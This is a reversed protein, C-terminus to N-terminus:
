KPYSRTGRSGKSRTPKHRRGSQFLGAEHTYPRTAVYAGVTEPYEMGVVPNLMPVYKGTVQDYVPKYLTPGLPEQNHLMKGRWKFLTPPTPNANMEKNIQDARAQAERTQAKLLDTQADAVENQKKQAFADAIAQAAGKAASGWKDQGPIIQAPGPTSAGLAFLPHLGFNTAAKVKGAITHYAADHYDTQSLKKSGSGGLMGGLLSGGASILSSTVLPDM